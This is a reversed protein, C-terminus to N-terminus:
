LDPNLDLDDLFDLSIQSPQAHLDQRYPNAGHGPRGAEQGPTRADPPRGVSHTEGLPGLSGELGLRGLRMKVENPFPPNFTQTPKPPPGGPAPPPPEEFNPPASSFTSIHQAYALLEPYPIAGERAQEIAKLREDGERLIGELARKDEELTVCVERWRADLELIEAALAEIQRQKVQHAYAVSVARSLRENCAVFAEASPPPHTKGQAPALSAFLKHALAQLEELPQLLQESMSSPQGNIENLDNMM